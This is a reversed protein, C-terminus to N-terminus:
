GIKEGWLVRLPSQTRTKAEAPQRWGVGVGAERHENCGAQILFWRCVTWIFFYIFLTFSSLLYCVCVVFFYTQKFHCSHNAFISVFCLLIKDPIRLFKQKDRVQSFFFFPCIPFFIEKIKRSSETYVMTGFRSVLMIGKGRAIKCLASVCHENM